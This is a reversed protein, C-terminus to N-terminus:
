HGAANVSAITGMVIAGGVAGVWNWTVSGVEWAGSAAGFVDELVITDGGNNWWEGVSDWTESAWNKFDDWLGRTAPSGASILQRNKFKLDNLQADSYVSLLEPHNMALQWKQYNEVWYATSALATSAGAYFAVLEREDLSGQAEVVMAEIEKKLKKLGDGKSNRVSNTLKEYLRQFEPSFDTGGTEARTKLSIDRKVSLAEECFARDTGFYRNEKAFNLVSRENLKRLEEKTLKEKSGSRTKVRYEERIAQFAYELGNNHETGIMAFEAPIGSLEISFPAEPEYDFPDIACSFVIVASAVITAFLGGLSILKRM